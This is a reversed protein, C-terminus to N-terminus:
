GMTKPTGKAGRLLTGELFVCCTTFGSICGLPGLLLAAICGGTVGRAESERRSQRPTSLIQALWTFYTSTYM